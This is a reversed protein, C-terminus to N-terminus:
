ICVDNMDVVPSIATIIKEIKEKLIIKQGTSGEAIIRNGVKATFKCNVENGKLENLIAEFIVKQGVLVPSVHQVNVYTGIGEENLDKMELVFLRSCWEADRAIAFTAYLAHVIGADFTATDELCVIREFVKKEGLKFKM